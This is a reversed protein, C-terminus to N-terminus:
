KFFFTYLLLYTNSESISSLNSQTLYQSNSVVSDKTSKPHISGNAINFECISVLPGDAVLTSAAQCLTKDSPLPTALDEDVPELKSPLEPETKLEMNDNM